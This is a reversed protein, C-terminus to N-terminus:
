REMKVKGFGHEETNVTIDRDDAKTLLKARASKAVRVDQINGPGNVCGGECSMGEIFNSPFRGSGLMTLAKKCELAGNCRHAAVSPAVGMEELARM